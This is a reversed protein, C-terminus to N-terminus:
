RSLGDEIHPRIRDIWARYGAGTLHIGDFNLAPNMGGPGGMPTALDIYQAGRRRALALLGANLAVIQSQQADNCRAGCFVSQVYVMAGESMLRAVTADYVPLIEENSNGDYVDNIGVLLFIKRPRRRLIEPVRRQVGGVTDAGIGRNIIRTHPFYENWRGLLTLSDGVMAVDARVTSILDADAQAFTGPDTAPDGAVLRKLQVAQDFPFVRYFGAAMGWVFSGACLLAIALWKWKSHAM